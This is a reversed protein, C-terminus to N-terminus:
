SPESTCRQFRVRRLIFFDAPNLHQAVCGVLELPLRGLIDYQLMWNEAYSKFNRIEWSNLLSWIGQHAARRSQPDRLSAFGRVVSQAADLDM